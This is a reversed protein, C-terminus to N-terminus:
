GAAVQNGAPSAHHDCVGDGYVSLAADVVAAEADGAAAAAVQICQVGPTDHRGDSCVQVTQQRHRHQHAAFLTQLSNLFPFFDTRIGTHNNKAEVPADAM